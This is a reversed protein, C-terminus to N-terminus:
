HVHPTSSAALTSVYQPVDPRVPGPKLACAAASAFSVFCVAYENASLQFLARFSRSQLTGGSTLSSVLGQATAMLLMNQLACGAATCNEALSSSGDAATTQVVMLMLLPSRFAKSRAREICEPTPPEDREHLADVFAQALAERASDPVRVIRWAGHRHHDPAHAAAELILATQAVDPASDAMNRPRVTRRMQMLGLAQQASVDPPSAAMRRQPASTQERDMGM